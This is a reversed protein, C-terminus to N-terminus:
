TAQEPFPLLRRRQSIETLVKRAETDDPDHELRLKWPRAEDTLAQNAAIFARAADPMPTPQCVHGTADLAGCTRCRQLPPPANDILAPREARRHTALIRPSHFEPNTAADIADVTFAAFDRYAAASDIQEAVLKPDWPKKIQKRIACIVDALSETLSM